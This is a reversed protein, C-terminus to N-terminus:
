DSFSFPLCWGGHHMWTGSETDLSFTGMGKDYGNSKFSVFVTCGDPHLASAM